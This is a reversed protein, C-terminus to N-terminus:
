FRIKLGISWSRGWGYYVRSTSALHKAGDTADSVYETDLLNNVNMFLTTNLDSVKFNYRLNVDILSYAPMEWSDFIQDNNEGEMAGRDLVDFDAFLNTYYNYDAGFKLGELLEYDFGLAATTQAADGVRVDKVYLDITEVQNQNEDFVGVDEVNNLWRWDGVSIFGTIQLKELPKAVFDAEVGMHLADVGLINAIYYEGEQAAPFSRTFTKDGWKTYYGNVNASIMASRYGYGLEASIVNENQAKDNILNIYNLFVADFDPQRQFYGANFFVNHNDTLNYNAGGKIMYGIFSVWDSEQGKIAENYSTEGIDAIAAQSLTSSAELETIYDDNFYNFYDVRKFSKDSVSLSVFTNLKDLSYEAQAFVGAWAVHGDNYYAIKDGVGVVKTTNNYDVDDVYFEGGMLDDVERYHEGKYYRGDIGAMLDLDGITKNYSTLLGYWKHNNNSTRMIASSGDVGGDAENEDVIRDFDIQGDRKYDYFKDDLGGYPGTGGGTGISAYIATSMSTNEDITYFHNLIAQPKHYFNRRLNYVEGNRYGWDSNYRIGKEKFTAISQETTRQGHWQPAGFLSFALTHKDNLRKSVNLFYSYSEFQTADVYGDGEAKAVSITAAWNSESLGTSLTFGFKSYGDAGTTTFASGGRKADTTKTLINLTGGLSPVAVKSAGLGRQVQMSRTVDALGAWNSWYVWGNEMDNVPVGNIMTATNRQDFGRINIRSDGFGGGQKTAYVGPTSKLIEPYEQTGLKEAIQQPKITSLAVPTERAIAVSAVVKVENINVADPNVAITGLDMDGTVNIEKVLELYGVYTFVMKQEGSPVVIKFSGDLATATGITTGDVVVSAGILPENNDADVLKGTLTSQSYSAFSILMLAMILIKSKFIKMM